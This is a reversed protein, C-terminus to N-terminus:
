NSGRNTVRRVELVQTSFGYQRLADGVQLGVVDRMMENAKAKTVRQGPEVGIVGDYKILVKATFAPV